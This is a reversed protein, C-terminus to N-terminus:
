SKVGRLLAWMRQQWPVDVDVFGAQRLYEVQTAVPEHCDDGSHRPQKFNVINREHWRALLERVSNDVLGDKIIQNKHEAWAKLEQLYEAEDLPRIEDGNLLVGGPELIQYCRAYLDRKEAPELHHIASMSTIVCPSEPLQEQWPDQLRAEVCIAREGFEALRTRALDLFATSQDLVMCRLRPFQALALAAFRGSGGGLDVLLSGSNGPPPILEILRQQIELYYPHIHEAAADFGAAYDAVNWRYQTM